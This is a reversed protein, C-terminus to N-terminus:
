KMEIPNFHKMYDLADKIKSKSESYLTLIPEGKKVNGIHKHLYAGASISEPTGLVRCLSNIEKNGILIIKGSKKAYIIKKFKALKLKSVRKDFDQKNNQILM